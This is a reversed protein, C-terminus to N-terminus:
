TLDYTITTPNGNADINNATVRAKTDAVANRYVETTTGGGTRRGAVTAGIVRLAQRVTLGAEVGDTRDLLADGTAAAALVPNALNSLGLSAVSYPDFAVVQVAVVAGRSGSKNVRVTVFGFTDVEAASLELYYLGGGIQTAATTGAANAETAGNKSVLLEGAVFTAGTVPTFGDASAVLAFVVRRRAATSESQRILHM